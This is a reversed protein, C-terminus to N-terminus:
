AEALLRSSRDEVIQEFSRRLDPLNAALVAFEQKPLTLADMSELCRVPATRTTPNVLAMEGFGGGPGLRAIRRESGAEQRVVEAAGSLIIYVRDGLEGQHFVEQGPEFHERSVARSGGLKLQV